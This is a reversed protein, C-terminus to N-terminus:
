LRSEMLSCFTASSGRLVGLLDKPDSHRSAADSLRILADRCNAAFPETSPNRQEM